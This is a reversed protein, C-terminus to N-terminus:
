GQGDESATAIVARDWADLASQLGVVYPALEDDLWDHKEQDCTDM